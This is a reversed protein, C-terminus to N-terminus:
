EVFVLKRGEEAKPFPLAVVEDITANMEAALKTRIEQIEAATVIGREIV